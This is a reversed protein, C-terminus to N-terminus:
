WVQQMMIENCALIKNNETDEKAEVTTVNIKKVASLTRRM